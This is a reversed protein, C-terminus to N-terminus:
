QRNTFYAITGVALIPVVYVGLILKRRFSRHYATMGAKIYANRAEGGLGPNEDEWAQELRGRALSGAYLSILIYFLSLIAFGLVLARAVGM